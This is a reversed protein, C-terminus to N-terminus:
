AGSSGLRLWDGSGEAAASPVPPQSTSEKPLRNLYIRHWKTELCRYIFAATWRSEHYM